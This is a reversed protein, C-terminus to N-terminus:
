AVLRLTWKRDALLSAQKRARDTLVTAKKRPLWRLCLGYLLCADLTVLLLLLLGSGQCWPEEPDWGTDIFAMVLVAHAAILLLMRFLRPLHAALAAWPIQRKRVEVPFPPPIRLAGGGDRVTRSPSPPTTSSSTATGGAAALAATATVSAHEPLRSLIFSMVSRTEDISEDASALSEESARRGKIRSM